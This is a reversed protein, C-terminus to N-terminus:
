KLIQKIRNKVAFRHSSTDVTLIFPTRFLSSTSFRNYPTTLTSTIHKKHKKPTPKKISNRIRM